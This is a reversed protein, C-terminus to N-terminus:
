MEQQILALIQEKDPLKILGKKAILKDDVWVTFEGVRGGSDLEAEIGSERKLFEAM